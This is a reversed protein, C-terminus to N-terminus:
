ATQAPTGRAPAPSVRHLGWAAAAGIVAVTVMVPLPISGGEQLWEVRQLAPLNTALVAFANNTVHIVMSPWLRGTRWAVWGLILGLVTTPVLRYLDFHFAGFLVASWIVASRGGFRNELGRLVFGRFLIEECVGPVVAFVLVSLPLGFGGDITILREMMERYSEPVQLVVGQASAALAACLTAAPALLFALFPTLPPLRKLRLTEAVPIRLIRLAVLPIGAIVLIQTLVLGTSVDRLQLPGGIYFFGLLVLAFVQAVLGPSLTEVRATRDRRFMERWRFRAGAETGGLMGEGGFLVVAQRLMLLALGTMVALTIAFYDWPYSGLLLERSLLVVNAIPILAIEYSVEFGPLIALYTPAICAILLPSLYNQAEKFSRAFSAVVMALGCFFLAMPIMVVFVLFFSRWDILAPLNEGLAGGLKASGILYFV